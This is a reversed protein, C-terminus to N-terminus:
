YPTRSGIRLMSFPATSQLLYAAFRSVVRLVAFAGTVRRPKSEGVARNQPKPNFKKRRQCALKNTLAVSQTECLAVNSLQVTFRM